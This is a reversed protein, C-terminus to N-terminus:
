QRHQDHQHHQRHQHGQYQQGQYQQGQGWAARPARPAPPSAILQQLHYPSTVESWPSDPNVKLTIRGNQDTGYKIIGKAYKAERV